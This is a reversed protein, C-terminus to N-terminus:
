LCTTNNFFHFVQKFIRFVFCFLINLHLWSFVRQKEDIIARGKPLKIEFGKSVKSILDPTGRINQYEFTFVAYLM